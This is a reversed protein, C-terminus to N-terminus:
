DMDISFLICQLYLYCVQINVDKADELEHLLKAIQSSLQKSLSGTFTANLFLSAAKGTDDTSKKSLKYPHSASDQESLDTGHRVVVDVNKLDDSHEKVASSGEPEQNVARNLFINKDKESVSVDHQDIHNSSNPPLMPISNPRDLAADDSTFANPADTIMEVPTQDAPLFKMGNESPSDLQFPQTKRKRFMVEEESELESTSFSQRRSM